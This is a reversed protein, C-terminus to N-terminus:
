SKTDNLIKFNFKKKLDKLTNFESDMLYVYKDQSFNILDESFINKDLKKFCRIQDEEKYPNERLIRDQKFYEFNSLLEDWNKINSDLKYITKNDIRILFLQVESM